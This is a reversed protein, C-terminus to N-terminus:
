RPSPCDHECICIFRSNHAEIAAVTEASDEASDYAIPQAIACYTDIPAIAPATSGTVCGSMAILTLLPLLRKAL